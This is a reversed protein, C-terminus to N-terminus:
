EEIGKLYNYEKKSIVLVGYTTNHGQACGTRQITQDRVWKWETTGLIKTIGENKSSAQVARRGGSVSLEVYM